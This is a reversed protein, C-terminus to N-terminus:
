QLATAIEAATAEGVLAARVIGNADAVIVAPVDTAQAGAGILAGFTSRIAPTAAAVRVRDRIGGHGIVGHKFNRAAIAPTAGGAGSRDPDLVVAIVTPIGSEMNGLREMLRQMTRRSAPDNTVLFVMVFERNLGDRKIEVGDTDTLTFDAVRKGVSKHALPDATLSPQSSPQPQATASNGIWEVCAVTALAAIAGVVARNRRIRM